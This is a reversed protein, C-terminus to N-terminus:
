PSGAQAGRALAASDRSLEKETPLPKQLRWLWRDVWRWSDLAGLCLPGFLWRPDGGEVKVRPLTMQDFGPRLAGHQSTFAFRYGCQAVLAAIRGNFSTRTGYPYAFARVEANLADQLMRKSQVLERHAAAPALTALNTHTMTHSGIELGAVTMAGLQEYSVFGQQGVQGVIVFLVAPIRHRQLVPLAHTYASVDADDITVLVGGDPLNQKGALFAEVAELSVALKRTALWSM